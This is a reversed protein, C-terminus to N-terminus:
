TGCNAHLGKIKEIAHPIVKCIEPLIQEVAKRSGPLNIILTDRCTGAVARSLSAMPTHRLGANIMFIELGHLRKDIVAMTAEPTNDRPGLGTGGTTIVLDIGNEVCREIESKILDYDDPIIVKEVVDYGERALYDVIYEGSTDVRMGASAKDSLVIVSAKIEM